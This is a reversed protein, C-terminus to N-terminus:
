VNGGKLNMKQRNGQPYNGLVMTGVKPLSLYYNDVFEKILRLNKEIDNIQQFHLMSLPLEPADKSKHYAAILKRVNGIIRAIDAETPLDQVKWSKVVVSNTYGLKNM